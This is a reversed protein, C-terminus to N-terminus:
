YGQERSVRGSIPLGKKLNGIKNVIQHVTDERLTIAAIHPTVTISAHSWFPHNKPLPESRFVDLLAGALRGCALLDLLDQEVLHRGRAVNILYARPLLQELNERNLINETEPTLPLLNVLVRTRALFAPLREAGGYVQVGDIERSRRAWGAVPYGLQAVARAVREGIAGLGMVGVPWRLRDIPPLGSWESAQQQAEYVGFERAARLLGYVVYEVMQEAMGADELRVIPLNGPLEPLGLLSDIGAGLNFVAQLRTERVFLAPAPQWVIAYDAGVPEGAEDWPIFQTDPLSGEFANCWKASGPRSNTAVIIKTGAGM